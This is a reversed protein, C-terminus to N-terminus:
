LDHGTIFQILCKTSAIPHYWKDREIDVIEPDLVLDLDEREIVLIIGSNAAVAAKRKRIVEGHNVGIVLIKNPLLIVDIIEMSEILARGIELHDTGTAAVAQVIM